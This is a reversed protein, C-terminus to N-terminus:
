YSWWSNRSRPEAALPCSPSSLLASGLLWCLLVSGGRALGAPAAERSCSRVEGQLAHGARLLLGPVATVPPPPPMPCSPGPPLRTHQPTVHMHVHMCMRVCACDTCTHVCSCTLVACTSMCMVCMYVGCLVHTCTCMHKYICAWVQAYVCLHTYMCTYVPTRVHRHARACLCMHVCTRAYLICLVCM